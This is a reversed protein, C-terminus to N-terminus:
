KHYPHNESIKTARYLQEVLILRMLGHPFTMKSFSIHERCEKLVEDSLGESGGIIFTLNKKEKLKELFNSFSISDYAKGKISLSVCYNDKMYKLLQRGEKEKNSDKIEIIKLKPMQKKYFNIEEELTERIKGVALIIM